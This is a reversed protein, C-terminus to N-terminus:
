YQNIFGESLNFGLRLLCLKSNTVLFILAVFFGFLQLYEFIISALGFYIYELYKFLFFIWTSSFFGIRLLISLENFLFNYPAQFIYVVKVYFYTIKEFRIDWIFKDSLYVAEYMLQILFITCDFWLNEVLPVFLNVFLHM